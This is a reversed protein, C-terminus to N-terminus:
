VKTRKAMMDCEGIELTAWLGKDENLCSFTPRQQSTHGNYTTRTTPETDHIGASYFM